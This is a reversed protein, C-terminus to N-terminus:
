MIRFHFLEVNKRCIGNLLWNRDCYFCLKTGCHGHPTSCVIHLHCTSSTHAHPHHTSLTCIVHTCASSTRIVHVHQWTYYQMFYPLEPLYKGPDQSNIQSYCGFTQYILCSSAMKFIDFCLCSQMFGVPKSTPVNSVYPSKWINMKSLFTPIFRHVKQRPDM